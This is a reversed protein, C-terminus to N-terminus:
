KSITWSHIQSHEGWKLFAFTIKLGIPIFDSEKYLKQQKAPGWTLVSLSGPAPSWADPHKLVERHAQFPLVPLKHPEMSDQFAESPVWILLLSDLLM